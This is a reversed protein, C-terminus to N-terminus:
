FDSLSQCWFGSSMALTHTEDVETDAALKASAGETSTAGQAAKIEAATRHEETTHRKNGWTWRKCKGCYSCEKGDIIKTNAEGEKPAPTTKFPSKKSNDTGNQSSGAQTDKDQKDRRKLEAVEKQLAVLASDVAKPPEIAKWVKEAKLLHYTAKLERIVQTWPMPDSISKTKRFIAMAESSFATSSSDLFRAAILGSLDRPAEGLGEIQSALDFIQDCLTEVNEGPTNKLSMEALQTTLNRITVSASSQYQLIIATLIHVGDIKRGLEPEIKTWLELSVSDQLFLGSWELNQDDYMDLATTKLFADVDDMSIKSWEDCIYYTPETTGKKPVHMLSDLGFRQLHRAVYRMWTAFTITTGAAGPLGLHRTPDLGQCAKDRIPALDKNKHPRMCNYSEMKRNAIKPNGGTWAVDGEGDSGIGGRLPKEIKSTMKIAEKSESVSTISRKSSSVELESSISEAQSPTTSEPDPNEIPDEIRLYSESGESPEFEGKSEEVGGSM